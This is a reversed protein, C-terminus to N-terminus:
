PQVPIVFRNAPSYILSCASWATARFKRSGATADTILWRRSLLRAPVEGRNSITITYVFVYRGAVPESDSDVFKSVAEVVISHKQDKM